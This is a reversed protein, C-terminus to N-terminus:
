SIAGNIKPEHIAGSQIGWKTLIQTYTGNAVLQKLAALIPTTMGSNKPIAVGYPEFAYSEGVLKFQGGTQKIQYAAVPSDVMGLEARGAAIALSVPNQGPFVLVNVPKKGEKTCTGSQKTSEKQETTAKEVAVTKGCLDALKTVGPNASSKAYFSIGSTYYDVFDVKGEREKTDTM